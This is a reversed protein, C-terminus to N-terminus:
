LILYALSAKHEFSGTVWCQYNFRVLFCFVLFIFLDFFIILNYLLRGIEFHLSFEFKIHVIVHIPLVHHCALDSAFRALKISKCQLAEIVSSSTWSVNSVHGQVILRDVDVLAHHVLGLEELHSWFSLSGQIGM